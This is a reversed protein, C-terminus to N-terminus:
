APVPIPSWVQQWEIFKEKLMRYHAEAERSQKEGLHPNQLLDTALRLARRPNGAHSWLTLESLLHIFAFDHKGSAQAWEILPRELHAAEAFLDSAAEYQQQATLWHAELILSSRRKNQQRLEDPLGSYDITGSM